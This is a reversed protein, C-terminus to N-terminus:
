PPPHFVENHVVDMIFPCSEAMCQIGHAPTRTSRLITKTCLASLCSRFSGYSCTGLRENNGRSWWWSANSFRLKTQISFYLYRICFVEFVNQRHSTWYTVPLNHSRELPTQFSKLGTMPTEDVGGCSGFCNGHVNLKFFAHKLWPLTILNFQVGHIKGIHAAFVNM